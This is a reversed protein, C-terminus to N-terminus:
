HDQTNWGRRCIVIHSKKFPSSSMLRFMRRITEGDLRFNIRYLLALSKYFKTVLIKKPPNQRLHDFDIQYQYKGLPHHETYLQNAKWSSIFITLWSVEFLKKEKYFNRCVETVLKHERHIYDWTAIKATPVLLDSPTAKM